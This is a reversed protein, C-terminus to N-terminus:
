EIPCITIEERHMIDINIDPSFDIKLHPHIDIEADLITFVQASINNKASPEITIIARLCVSEFVWFDKVDISLQDKEDNETAFLDVYTIIIYTEIELVDPPNSETIAIHGDVKSVSEIEPNDKESSEILNLTSSVVVATGFQILDSGYSETIPQDNVSSVLTKSGIVSVDKGIEYNSLNGDIPILGSSNISDIGTENISINTSVINGVISSFTDDGEEELIVFGPSVIVSSLVSNFSEIEQSTEQASCIASIKSVVGSIISDRINQEQRNFQVSVTSIAPSAFGDKTQPEEGSLSSYINASSTSVFVDSSVNEEASLSSSIGISLSIASDDPAESEFCEIVCEQNTWFTQWETWEGATGGDITQRTSWRYSSASYLEDAILFTDTIGEFLQPNVPTGYYSEAVVLSGNEFLIREVTNELRIRSFLELRVDFSNSFENPTYEWNLRASSLTIQNSYLDFPVGIQEVFGSAHLQDPTSNENTVLSSNNSVISSSAFADKNQELVSFTKSQASTKVVVASSDKGDPEFLQINSSVSSRATSSITDSLVETTNVSGTINGFGSATIQDKEVPEEAQFVSVVFSNLSSVFGDKTAPEQRNFVLSASVKGSFVAIDSPPGESVALSFRNSNKIAGSISDLGVENYILSSEIKIQINSVFSDASSESPALGGSIALKGSCLIVDKAQTESLGLGFTIISNASITASDTATSEAVSLDVCASDWYTFGDDWTSNPNDWTSRCTM